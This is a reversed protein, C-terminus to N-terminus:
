LSVFIAPGTVLSAQMAALVKLGVFEPDRLWPAGTQAHDDYVLEPHEGLKMRYIGKHPGQIIARDLNAMVYLRGEADLAAGRGGVFDWQDQAPLAGYEGEVSVNGAEDAFLRNFVKGERALAGFWVGSDHVRGAALMRMDSLGEGRFPVIEGTSLNVYAFNLAAFSSRTLARERDVFGYIPLKTIENTGEYWPGGACFRGFWPSDSRPCASKGGARDCNYLVRGDVPNVHFMQVSESPGCAPTPVLDDEPDVNEGTSVWSGPPAETSDQWILKGPVVKRVRMRMAGRDLYLIDNTEPVITALAASARNLCPKTGDLNAALASYDSVGDNRPKTLFGYLHVGTATLENCSSSAERAVSPGAVSGSTPANEIPTSPANRNGLEPSVEDKPKAKCGVIAVVALWGLLSPVVVCRRTSKSREKGVM